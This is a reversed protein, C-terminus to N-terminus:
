MMPAHCLFESAASSLNLFRFATVSLTAPSLDVPQDSLVLAASPQTYWTFWLQVSTACLGLEVVAMHVMKLVAIVSFRQERGHIRAHIHLLNCLGGSM